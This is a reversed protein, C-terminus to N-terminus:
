AETVVIQEYHIPLSFQERLTELYASGDTDLACEGAVVLRAASQSGPWLSYELLQGIAERICARPSQATKIEYFWYTDPHRVVMDIRNGTGCPNEAGVNDKGYLQALQQYLAEQLVNHRLNIDLRRQAPSTAAANTKKTSCGARFTFPEKEVTAIPQLAGASEVFKYLPLLRDFDSLITDIDPAAAPQRKGLFVFVRERVNEPPIPAPPYDGVYEREQYHWMRMDAYLDPYLRLFDNFLQVKDILPEISPLTQSLDFSFAVGHRLMQQGDVDELGINFQLETRGGHHSAWDPHITKTTFIDTGSRRKGKLEARISQLQGIAYAHARLNIQQAVTHVVQAPSINDTDIIWYRRALHHESPPIGYAQCYQLFATDIEDYGPTTPEYNQGLLREFRKNTDGGNRNDLDYQHETSNDKYGAFKSPAFLYAGEHKYAVFRKGNKIRVRHFEQEESTGQAYRSLTRINQIADELTNIFEAVDEGVLSNM